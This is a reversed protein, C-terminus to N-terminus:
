LNMWFLKTKKMKAEKLRLKKLNHAAEIVTQEAITKTEETHKYLPNAAKKLIDMSDSLAQLKSGINEALLKNRKMLYTGHKEVVPTIADVYSMLFGLSYKM